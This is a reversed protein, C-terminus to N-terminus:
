YHSGGSFRWISDTVQPHGTFLRDVAALAVTRPMATAPAGFSGEQAYCYTCGLNCKQAVALSLSRLPVTTSPVDDGIAGPQHVGLSELIASSSATTGLATVLDRCAQGDMEYVQSGDTVFLYIRDNAEFQHWDATHRDGWDYVPEPGSPTFSIVPLTIHTMTDGLVLNHNCDRETM